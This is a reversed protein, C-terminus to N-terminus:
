VQQAQAFPNTAPASAQPLKSSSATPFVPMSSPARPEARSSSSSSSSQQVQQQQQHQPKARQQQQQQQRKQTNANANTSPEQAQPKQQKVPKQKKERQKKQKKANAVTNKQAPSEVVPADAASSTHNAPQNKKEWAKKSTVPLSKQAADRFMQQQKLQQPTQKLQVPPERKLVQKIKQRPKQTRAICTCIHTHIYM